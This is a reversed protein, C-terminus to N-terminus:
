RTIIWLITCETVLISGETRPHLHVKKLEEQGKTEESTKSTKSPDAEIFSADQMTCVKISIRKAIIWDRIDNFGLRDMFTEVLKEAFYWITNRCTFGVSNGLFNM